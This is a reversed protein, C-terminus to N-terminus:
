EQVEQEIDLKLVDAVYELVEIFEFGKREGIKDLYPQIIDYIAREIIEYERHGEETLTLYVVRRDDLSPTREILGKNVLKNCLSTITSRGVCLQDALESSTVGNNRMLYRVVFSQEASIDTPLAERIKSFLRREILFTAREYREVIQAMIHDSAMM